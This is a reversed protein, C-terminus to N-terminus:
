NLDKASVYFALYSKLNKQLGLFLTHLCVYLRTSLALRGNLLVMAFSQLSHCLFTRLKSHAPMSIRVKVRVSWVYLILNSSISDLKLFVFSGVGCMRCQRKPELLFGSFILPGSNLEWCGCPLESGDTILESAWYQCYMCVSFGYLYIKFLFLLWSQVGM